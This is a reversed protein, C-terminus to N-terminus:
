GHAMDSRQHYQLHQTPYVVLDLQESCCKPKQLAPSSSHYQSPRLCICYGSPTDGAFLGTGSSIGNQTERISFSNTDVSCILRIVASIRITCRAAQYRKRQSLRIDLHYFRKFFLSQYIHGLTMRGLPSIGDQFVLHDLVLWIALSLCILLLSRRISTGFGSYVSNIRPLGLMSTPGLQSREHLIFRCLLLLNRFLGLPATIHRPWRPFCRSPNWCYLGPSNDM